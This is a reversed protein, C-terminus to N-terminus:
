SLLAKQCQEPSCDYKVSEVRFRNGNSCAGSACTHEYRLRRTTQECRVVAYNTRVEGEHLKNTTQGYRVKMYNTRVEHLKNTGEHLKNSTQEYMGSGSEVRLDTRARLKNTGREVQNWGM